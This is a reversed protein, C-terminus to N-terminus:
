LEPFHLASSCPNVLVVESNCFDLSWGDTFHTHNTHPRIQLDNCPLLFTWKLSLWWNFSVEKWVQPLLYSSIYFFLVWAMNAMFITPSLPISLTIIAHPLRRVPTVRAPNSRTLWKRSLCHFVLRVLRDRISCANVNISGKKWFWKNLWYLAWLVQVTIVYLRRSLRTRSYYFIILLNVVSWQCILQIMKLFANM